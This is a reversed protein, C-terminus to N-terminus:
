QPMPISGQHQQQQQPIVQELYDEFRDIHSADEAALWTTLTVLPNEKQDPPLQVTSHEHLVLDSWYAVLTDPAAKVEIHGGQGDLPLLTLAGGVEVDPTDEDKKENLEVGDGGAFYVITLKRLDGDAGGSGNDVHIPMEAGDLFYDLKAGFVDQSLPAAQPLRERLFKPVENVLSSVFFVVSELRERKAEDGQVEYGYSGPVVCETVFTGDEQEEMGEDLAQQREEESLAEVFELTKTPVAKGRKYLDVAEDQVLKALRRSLFNPCEFVGRSKLHFAMERQLQPPFFELTEKKPVQQMEGREFADVEQQELAEHAEPDFDRVEQVGAGFCRAPKVRVRRLARVTRQM